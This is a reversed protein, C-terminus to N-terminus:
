PQKPAGDQGSRDTDDASTQQTTNVAAHTAGHQRFEKRGRVIRLLQHSKKISSFRQVAGVELTWTLATIPRVAPITM